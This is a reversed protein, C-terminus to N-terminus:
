IEKLHAGIDSETSKKKKLKVVGPGPEPQSKQSNYPGTKWTQREYTYWNAAHTERTAVQLSVVTDQGGWSYGQM